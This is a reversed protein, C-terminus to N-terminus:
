AGFFADSFFRNLQGVRNLLPAFLTRVPRQGGTGDISIAYPYDMWNTVSGIQDLDEESYGLASLEAPLGPRYETQTLTAEM